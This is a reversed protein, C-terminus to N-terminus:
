ICFSFGFTTINAEGSLGVDCIRWCSNTFAACSATFLMPLKRTISKAYLSITKLSPSVGSYKEHHGVSLKKLTCELELHLLLKPRRKPHTSALSSITCASSETWDDVM